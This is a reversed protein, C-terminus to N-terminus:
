VTVIRLACHASWPLIVWGTVMGWSTVIVSATVIVRSTMRCVPGPSIDRPDRVGHWYMACSVAVTVSPSFSWAVIPLPCSRGYRYGYGLGPMYWGERICPGHYTGCRGRRDARTRERVTVM